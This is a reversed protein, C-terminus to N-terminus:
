GKEIAVFSNRDLHIILKHLSTNLPGLVAGNSVGKVHVVLLPRLHLLKVHSKEDQIQHNSRPM